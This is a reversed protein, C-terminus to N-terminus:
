EQLVRLDFRRVIKSFSLHAVADDVPTDSLAGTANSALAPALADPGNEGGAGTLSAVCKRKDGFRHAREVGSLGLGREEVNLLDAEDHLM